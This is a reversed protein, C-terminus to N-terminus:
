IIERLFELAKWNIKMAKLKVNLLIKKKKKCSQKKNGRQKM